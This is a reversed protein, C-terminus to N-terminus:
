LLIESLQKLDRVVNNFVPVKVREQLERVMLPSSSCRGSLADPRLGFEEELVRVGGVAGLADGASFVLRHIRSRVYEDHLLAATERQLIGDAFEVVWYKKPNNAFKGDLDRFIGFVDDLSLMYTSPVGLHSFDAVREAGADQMHLIDKLSATGTVKCARVPHGMASLAWCCATASTSKGSNMSTGVHLIMPSRSRRAGARGSGRRELRRIAVSLPDGDGLRSADSLRRCQDRATGVAVPVRRGARRGDPRRRIAAGTADAINPGGSTVGGYAACTGVAVVHRARPALQEIWSLMSRGSGALMHFAGTGNPGRMASGELCLADIRVRGAAADELIAVVDDGSEESFSPHWLFRIGFLSLHEFLAPSEACLLSMSCGGCGGSQLWLVNFGSAAGDAM